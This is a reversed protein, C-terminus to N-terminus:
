SFYIAARDYQRNAFLHDAYIGAVYSVNENKAKCVAYAEKYKKEELLLKWAENGERTTDLKIVGKNSFIWFIGTSREYAMDSVLSGKFEEHVVLKQTISSIISISDQFLLYYHFDTVGISIPTEQVQYAKAEPLDARKAWRLAENRALFSDSVAEEPDPVRIRVISNNNVWLISTPRKLLKSYCVQNMSQYSRPMQVEKLRETQNRYSQILPELDDPGTFSVLSSNTFLIVVVYSRNNAQTLRLVELSTVESSLYLQYQLVNQERVEGNQELDIRYLVLIGGEITMLVDGSRTESIAGHFGIAKINVGKLEKLIKVKSDRYNLYYNIGGEGAIICHWGRPDIYINRM